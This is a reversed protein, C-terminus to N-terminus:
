RCDKGVRREESRFAVIRAGLPAYPLAADKNEIAHTGGESLLERAVRAPSGLEQSVEDETKGDRMGADFHEAYDYLIDEVQEAPLRDTLAERLERIFEVRNM